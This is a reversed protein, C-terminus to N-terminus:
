TTLVLHPRDRYRWGSVLVALLLLILASIGWRIGIPDAQTLIWAGLPVGVIAGAAMALVDTWDCRRAASPIMPLTMVGDTVLLLPVALKPGLAASAIPVFILAAGFGSFGRALGALLAAALAVWVPPTLFEM